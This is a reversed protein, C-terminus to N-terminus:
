EKGSSVEKAPAETKEKPKEEKKVEVPKAKVEPKVEKPSGKKLLNKFTENAANDLLSQGQKTIIRGKHVGKEGQKILEAKELQQLIKRIINGGAKYFHEPKHGRNKRGGFKTRLKSVGIPGMFAIKRLIAAARIHWWDKRVPTRERHMGTKVFQSWELPKIQENKKLEEATKEILKDAPVDLYTM